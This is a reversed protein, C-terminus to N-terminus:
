CIFNCEFPFEKLFYKHGSFVKGLFHSFFIQSFYQFCNESLLEKPSKAANQAHFTRAFHIGATIGRTGIRGGFNNRVIGQAHVTAADHAGGRGRSGAEEVRPRLGAGLQRGEIQAQRAGHRQAHRRVTGPVIGIQTAMQVGRGSGARQRAGVCTTAAVATAGRGAAHGALLRRADLLIQGAQRGRRRVEVLARMVDNLLIEGAQGAGIAAAGRGAMVCAAALGAM